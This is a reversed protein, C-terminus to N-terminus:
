LSSTSSQLYTSNLRTYSLPTFNPRAVGPELISLMRMDRGSVALYAAAEEFCRKYRTQTVVAPQGRPTTVSDSKMRLHSYMCSGALPVRSASISSANRFGLSQTHGSRGRTQIDTHVFVDIKYLQGTRGARCCKISSKYYPAASYNDSSRKEIENQWVLRPLVRGQIRVYYHWVRNM